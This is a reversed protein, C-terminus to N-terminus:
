AGARKADLRFVKHANLWVLKKFLPQDTFHTLIGLTERAICKGRMPGLNNGAGHGDLCFCDSGFILKNQHRNLFDPTFDPDRSLANYGSFASLDGFLNEYDSLLRDTLGGRSIKGRPYLSRGDYAADIYSWFSDAHGIFRTRPFQKLLGELDRFGTDWGSEGPMMSVDQMHITIPVDLEAALAYLRRLEPGDLAVHSKIEGFGIAGNKIGSTLIEEAGPKALDTTVTFGPFRGPYRKRLEAMQEFPRDLALIMANSVGAGDLHTVFAELTARPHLHCDVVQEGAWPDATAAPSPAQARLSHVATATIATIGARIMDRRSMHHMTTEKAALLNTQRIVETKM